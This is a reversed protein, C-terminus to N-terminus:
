LPASPLLLIIDILLCTASDKDTLYCFINEKGLSHKWQVFKEAESAFIMQRTFQAHRRLVLSSLATVAGGWSM